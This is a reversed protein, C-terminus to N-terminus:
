PAFRAWCARPAHTRAVVRHRAARRPVRVDSRGRGGLASAAQPSALVAIAATLAPGAISPPETLVADLAFAGRVVFPQGRLLRPYLARLPPVPPASVDSLVALRHGGGAARRQRAILGTLGIGRGIAVVGLVWSGARDVARWSRRASRTPSPSRAPPRGAIDFSGREAKLLPRDRARQHRDAPARDPGDRAIVAHACM